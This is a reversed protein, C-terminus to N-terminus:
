TSGTLDSAPESADLEPVRNDTWAVLYSFGNFAVARTRRHGGM